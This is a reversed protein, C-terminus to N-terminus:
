KKKKNPKVPSQPPTEERRLPQTAWGEDTVRPKSEKAISMLEIADLLSQAGERASNRLAHVQLYDVGAVVATKDAKARFEHQLTALLQRGTPSELFAHTDNALKPLSFWREITPLARTAM